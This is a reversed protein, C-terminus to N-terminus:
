CCHRHFSCSGDCCTCGLSMSGGRLSLENEPQPRPENKPQETVITRPESISDRAPAAKMPAQQRPPEVTPM